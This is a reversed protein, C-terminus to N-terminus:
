KPDETSQSQPVQWSTDSVTGFARKQSVYNSASSTANHIDLHVGGYVNHIPVNLAGVFQAQARSWDAHKSGIFVFDWM